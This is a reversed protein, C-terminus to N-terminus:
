HGIADSSSPELSARRVPKALRVLTLCRMHLQATHRIALRHRISPRLNKLAWVFNGTAITIEYSASSGLSTLGNIYRMISQTSRWRRNTDTRQSAELRQKSAQIHIAVSAHAPAALALDLQKQQMCPSAPLGRKHGVLSRGAM